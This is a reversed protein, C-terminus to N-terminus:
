FGFTVGITTLRLDPGKGSTFLSQPTHLVQLAFNSYGIGGGFEPIFNSLNRDGDLRTLGDKRDWAKYSSATRIKGAAYGYVFFSRAQPIPRWTFSGYVNFYTVSLRNKGFERGAEPAVEKTIGDANRRLTFDDYFHIKNFDFSTGLRFSHSRKSLRWSLIGLTLRYSGSPNLHDLDGHFNYKSYGFGLLETDRKYRNNKRNGGESRSFFPIRIRDNLFRQEESRHLDYSGRFIQRVKVTDGNPNIRRVSVNFRHGGDHITILKDKVRITTDQAMNNHAFLTTVSLLCAMSALAMTVLRKM